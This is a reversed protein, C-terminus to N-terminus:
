SQNIPESIDFIPVIQISDGLDRRDDEIRPTRLVNNAGWMVLEYRLPSIAGWGRDLRRVPFRGRRYSLRVDCYGDNRILLDDVDRESVTNNCIKRIGEYGRIIDCISSSVDRDVATSANDRFGDISHPFDNETAM